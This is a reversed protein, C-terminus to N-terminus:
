LLEMALASSNSCGQVFGDVDNQASLSVASKNFQFEGPGSYNNPSKLSDSSTEPQWKLYMITNM